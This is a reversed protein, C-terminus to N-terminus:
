RSDMARWCPFATAKWFVITVSHFITAATLISLKRPRCAKHQHAYFFLLLLLFLLLIEEADPSSLSSAKRNWLGVCVKIHVSM